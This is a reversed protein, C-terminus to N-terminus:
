EKLYPTLDPFLTERKSDQNGFYIRNGSNLQEVSYFFLELASKILSTRTEGAESAIKTMKEYTKGSLDLAVRVRQKEKGM